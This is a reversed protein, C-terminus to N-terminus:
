IVPGRSEIAEDVVRWTRGVRQLAIVGVTSPQSITVFAMGDGFIPTGLTVTHSCTVLESLWSVMLMPGAGDAAGAVLRVKRGRAARLAKDLWIKEVQSFGNSFGYTGAYQDLATWGSLCFSRPLLGLTRGAVVKLVAREETTALAPEALYYWTGVVITLAVLTAIRKKM